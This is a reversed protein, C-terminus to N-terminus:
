SYSCSVDVIARSCRRRGSASGFAGSGVGGRGRTGGTDLVRDRRLELDADEVVRPERTASGITILAPARAGARWRRRGRRARRRDGVAEQRRPPKSARSGVCAVPRRGSTGRRRDGRGRGAGGRSPTAGIFWRRSSVLGVHFSPASSRRATPLTMCNSRSRRRAVLGATAGADVLEPQPGDNSRLSPQTSGHNSSNQCTGIATVRSSATGPGRSRRSSCRRLALDGADLEAELGVRDVVVGVM